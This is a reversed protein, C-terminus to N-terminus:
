GVRQFRNMWSSVLIWLMKSQGELRAIQTFLRLKNDGNYQNNRLNYELMQKSLRMRFESYSLMKKEDIKWTSDLLEECCEKYMDYTVVVVISQAHLYASHWYKWTIFKNATNKIMHNALDMGYYHNLYTERAENQKIAWVRKDAGWGRERKRMYSFHLCIILVLYIRQDLRSSRCLTWLRRWKEM